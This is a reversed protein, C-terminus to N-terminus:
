VPFCCVWGILCAARGSPAPPTSTETQLDGLDKWGARLLRRAATQAGLARILRTVAVGVTFGLVVAISSNIFTAM